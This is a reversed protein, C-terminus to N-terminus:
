HLDNPAPAPRGGRPTGYHKVLENGVLHPPQGVASGAGINVSPERFNLPLLQAHCDTFHLLSFEGFPPPDYLHDAAEAAPVDLTLGAILGAALGQLVERRSLNGHAHDEINM